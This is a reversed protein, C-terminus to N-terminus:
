YQRAPLDSRMSATGSLALRASYLTQVLGLCRVDDKSQALCPAISGLPVLSLWGRGDETGQASPASTDSM